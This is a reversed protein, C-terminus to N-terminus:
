MGEAGLAAGQPVLHLLVVTQGVSLRDDVVAEVAHELM